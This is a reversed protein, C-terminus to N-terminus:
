RSPPCPLGTRLILSVPMPSRRGVVSVMMGSVPGYLRRDSGIQEPGNWRPANGTM